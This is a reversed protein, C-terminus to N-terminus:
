RVGGTVMHTLITDHIVGVEHEADIRTHVEKLEVATVCSGVADRVAMYDDWAKNGGWLALALLGTPGLTLGTKQSWSLSKLVDKM